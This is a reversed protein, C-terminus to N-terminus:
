NPSKKRFVSVLWIISAIGSWFAGSKWFKGSKLNSIVDNYISMPNTILVYAWLLLCVLIIIVIFGGGIIVIPSKLDSPTFRIGTDIQKTKAKSAKESETRVLDERRKREQDARHAKEQEESARRESEKAETQRSAGNKFFEELHSWADNIEKIKSTAKTHLQESHTYKDPHWVQCMLRYAVKAEEHSASSSIELIDFCRKLDHTM